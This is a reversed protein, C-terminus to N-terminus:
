STITCNKYVIYIIEKLVIVNLSQNM